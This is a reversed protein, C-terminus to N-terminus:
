IPHVPFCVQEPAAMQLESVMTFLQSRKVRLEIWKGSEEHPEVNTRHNQLLEKNM